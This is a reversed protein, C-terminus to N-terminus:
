PGVVWRIPARRDAALVRERAAREAEALGLKLGDRRRRDLGGEGLIRQLGRQLAPDAAGTYLRDRMIRVGMRPSTASTTAASASVTPREAQPELSADDDPEDDPSLAILTPITVSM